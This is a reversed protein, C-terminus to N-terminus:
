TCTGTSSKSEMVRIRLGFASGSGTPLFLASGFCTKYINCKTPHVELTTHLLLLQQLNHFPQPALLTVVLLEELLHFVIGEAFDAHVRRYTKPGETIRWRFNAIGLERCHQPDPDPHIRIWIALSSGSGYIRFGSGALSISSGIFIWKKLLNKM